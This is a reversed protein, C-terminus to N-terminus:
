RAVHAGRGRIRAVGSTFGPAAHNIGAEARYRVRERCLRPVDVAACSRLRLTSRCPRLRGETYSDWESTALPERLPCRAYRCPSFASCASQLRGADVTLDCCIEARTGKELFMGIRGRAGREGRM